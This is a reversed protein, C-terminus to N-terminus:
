TSLIEEAKKRKERRETKMEWEKEQSKFMEYVAPEPRIVYALSETMQTEDNQMKKGVM